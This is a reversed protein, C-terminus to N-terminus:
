LITNNCQVRSPSRNTKCSAADTISLIVNAHIVTKMTVATSSQLGTRMSFFFGPLKPGDRKQGWFPRVIDTRLTGGNLVVEDLDPSIFPMNPSNRERMRRFHKMSGQLNDLFAKLLVSKLEVTSKM